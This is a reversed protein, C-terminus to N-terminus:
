GKPSKSEDREKLTKRKWPPVYIERNLTGLDCGKTSNSYNLSKTDIKELPPSLLSNKSRPSHTTEGKSLEITSLINSIVDIDEDKSMPSNRNALSGCEKKKVPVSPFEDVSESGSPQIRHGKTAMQKEQNLSNLERAKPRYKPVDEPPSYGPRVKFIKRISGDPRTSGGVFRNGNIDEKIGSPLENKKM